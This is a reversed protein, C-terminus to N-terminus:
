LQSLRCLEPAPGIGRAEKSVLRRLNARNSCSDGPQRHKQPLGQAECRGSTPLQFPDFASRQSRKGINASFPGLAPHRKWEPHLGCTAVDLKALCRSSTIGDAAEQRQAPRSGRSRWAPPNGPSWNGGGEQQVYAELYLLSVNLEQGKARVRAAARGTVLVVNGYGRVNVNESAFYHYLLEGSRISALFEGKTQRWGSAHTYILDDSLLRQLAPIDAETMARFRRAELDKIESETNDPPQSRATPPVLLAMSISFLIAQKM